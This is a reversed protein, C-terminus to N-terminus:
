TAGRPTVVLVRGTTREVVYVSLGDPGMVADSAGTLGTVVPFSSWDPRYARLEGTAQLLILVSNGWALENTFILARPTDLVPLLVDPAAPFPDARTANWLFGDDYDPDTGLFLLWLGKPFLDHNAAYLRHGSGGWPLTTTLTTPSAMSDVRVMNDSNRNLYMVPSFGPDGAVLAEDFTIGNCNNFVYWPAFDGAASVSFVGDGGGSSASCVFLFEGYSGDGPGFVLRSVNRDPGNVGDSVAFTEFGTGDYRAVTPTDGSLGIYPGDPWSGFPPFAMVTARDTLDESGANPLTDVGFGRAVRLGGEDELVAAEVTYTTDGTVEMLPPMGTITATAPAASALAFRLGVIPITGDAAVTVSVAQAPGGGADLFAGDAELVFRVGPVQGAAPELSAQIRTLAGAPVTTGDLATLVVREATPADAPFSDAIVTDGTPTDRSADQADFGIRGCGGGLVLLVLSLAARPM